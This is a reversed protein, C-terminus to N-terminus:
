RPYTERKVVAGTGADIEVEIPQGNGTWGEVKWRGERLKVERVRAVGADRATAVAQAQTVAVAQAAGRDRDGHRALAPAPAALICALSFALVIRPLSM